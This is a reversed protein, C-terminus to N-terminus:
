DQFKKKEDRSHIKFIEQVLASNHYEEIRKYLKTTSWCKTCDYFKCFSAIRGNGTFLETVYQKALHKDDM